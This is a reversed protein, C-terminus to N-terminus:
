HLEERHERGKEKEWDWDWKLGPTMLLVRQSCTECWHFMSVYTYYLSQRRASCRTIAIFIMKWRWANNLPLFFSLFCSHSFLFSHLLSFHFSLIFASLSFYFM